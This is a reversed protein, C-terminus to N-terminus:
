WWKIGNKAALYVSYAARAVLVMLVLLSALLTHQIFTLWDAGLWAFPGAYRGLDMGRSAVLAVNSLWQVVQTLLDKIPGFALDAIEEIPM